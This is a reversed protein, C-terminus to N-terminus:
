FGTQLHITQFITIKCVKVAAQMLKVYAEEKTLGKLFAKKAKITGAHAAPSTIHPHEPDAPCEKGNQKNQDEGEPLQDEKDDVEPMEVDKARGGGMSDDTPDEDEDEEESGTDSESDSSPEVYAKEKGKGKCHGNSGHPVIDKPPAYKFMVRQVGNEQHQGWRDWM